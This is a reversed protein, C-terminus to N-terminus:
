LALGIRVYSQPISYSAGSGDTAFHRAVGVAGAIHLRSAFLWQWGVLIQPEISRAHQAPYYSVSGGGGLVGIGQGYGVFRDAFALGPEVYPGHFPRDLYIPM